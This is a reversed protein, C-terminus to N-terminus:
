ENGGREDRVFVCLRRGQGSGSWLAPGVRRVQDPARFFGAFSSLNAEALAPAHHVQAQFCRGRELPHTFEDCAVYGERRRPEREQEQGDAGRIAVKSTSTTTTTPEAVFQSCEDNYLRVMSQSTFVCAKGDPGGSRQAEMESRQACLHPPMPAGLAVGFDAWLTPCAHRFVSNLFTTGAKPFHMWRVPPAGAAGAPSPWPASCIRDLDGGDELRARLRALVRRNREYLEAASPLGAGTWNAAAAEAAAAARMDALEKEREAMLEASPGASPRGRGGRIRGAPSQQQGGIGHLLSLVAAAVLSRM